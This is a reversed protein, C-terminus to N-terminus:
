YVYGGLSGVGTYGTVAPTGAAVLTASPYTQIVKTYTSTAPHVIKSYSAPAAFAGYGGTGFAGYSAPYFGGYAFKSHAADYAATHYTAAAPVTYTSKIVTPTIYATAPYGALGLSTDYGGFGSLGTYALGIGRKDQRKEGGDVTVTQQLGDLPASLIVDFVSAVLIMCVLVKM